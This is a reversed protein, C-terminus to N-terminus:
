WILHIAKTIITTTAESFKDLFRAEIKRKTESNKIKLLSTELRLTSDNKKLIIWM